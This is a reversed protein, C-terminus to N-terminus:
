REYAYGIAHSHGIEVGYGRYLSPSVRGCGDHWQKRSREIESLEQRRKDYHWRRAQQKALGVYHTRILHAYDNADHEEKLDPRSAVELAQRWLFLLKDFSISIVSCLSAYRCHALLAEGLKMKM